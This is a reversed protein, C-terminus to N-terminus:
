ASIQYDLCPDLPGCQLIEEVATWVDFPVHYCDTMWPDDVDPTIVERLKIIQERSIARQTSLFEDQKSFGDLSWVGYPEERVM